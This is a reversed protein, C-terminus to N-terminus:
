RQNAEPCVSETISIFLFKDCHGGPFSSPLQSSSILQSSGSHLDLGVGHPRQLQIPAKINREQCNMAHPSGPFSNDGQFHFNSLQTQSKAVGRVTSDMPNELGSCQLPHGKGEGPSRGLGPILGLDGVICASEKGASGGPCSPLAFEKLQPM